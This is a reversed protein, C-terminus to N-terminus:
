DDVDLWKVMIPPVDARDKIDDAKEQIQIVSALVMVPEINIVQVPDANRLIITVPNEPTGMDQKSKNSATLIGVIASTDLILRRHDTACLEIFARM